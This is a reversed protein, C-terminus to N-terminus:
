FINLFPPPQFGGWGGPDVARRRICVYVRMRINQKSTSDDTIMAM